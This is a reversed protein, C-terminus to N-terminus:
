TLKTRSRTRTSVPSVVIPVWSINRNTCGIHVKLGAHNEVEYYSVERANHVLVELPTNSVPYPIHVSPHPLSGKSAPSWCNVGSASTYCVGPVGDHSKRYRKSTCLSLDVSKTPEVFQDTLVLQSAGTSCAGAELPTTSRQHCAPSGVYHTLPSVARRQSISHNDVHRHNQNVPSGAELLTANKQHCVPLGVSHTPSSVVRQQSLQSISHNDVHNQSVPSGANDVLPPVVSSKRGLFQKLCKQNRRVQSPSKKKTRRTTHGSSSNASETDSGKEKWFLQVSIGVSSYQIKWSLCLGSAMATNICVAVVEPLSVSRTAM